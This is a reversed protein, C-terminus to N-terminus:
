TQTHEQNFLIKTEYLLDLVGEIKDAIQRVLKDNDNYEAGFNLTKIEKSDTDYTVINTEIGFGNENALLHNYDNLTDEIYTSDHIPIYIGKIQSEDIIIKVKM